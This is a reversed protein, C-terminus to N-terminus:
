LPSDKQDLDDDDLMCICPLVNSRPCIGRIDRYQHHCNRFQICSFEIRKKQKSIDEGQCILKPFCSM